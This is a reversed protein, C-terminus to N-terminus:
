YDFKNRNLFSLMAVGCGEYGDQFYVLVYYAGSKKCIFEVEKYHKRTTHNYSSGIKGRQDYLEFVIKGDYDQASAGVLKYKNGKSLMVTYKMTPAPSNRKAKKMKVKFDKLYTFDGAAEIAVNLLQDNCQANANLSICSLLLIAAIYSLTNKM